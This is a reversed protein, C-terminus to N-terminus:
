VSLWCTPTKAQKYVLTTQVEDINPEKVINKIRWTFKQFAEMVEISLKNEV